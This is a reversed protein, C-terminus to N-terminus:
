YSPPSRQLVLFGATLYGVAFLAYAAATIMFLSIPKNPEPTFGGQDPKQNM